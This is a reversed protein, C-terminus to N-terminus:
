INDGKEQLLTEGEQLTVKTKNATGELKELRELVNLLGWSILEVMDMMYLDLRVKSPAQRKHMEEYTELLKDAFNDTCHVRNPNANLKAQKEEKGKENPSKPM